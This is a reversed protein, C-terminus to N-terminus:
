GPRSVPAPAANQNSDEFGDAEKQGLSFFVALAQQRDTGGRLPDLDRPVQFEIDGKRRGQRNNRAETRRACLSSSSGYNDTAARDLPFFGQQEGGEFKHQGAVSTGDHDERRAM